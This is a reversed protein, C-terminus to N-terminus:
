LKTLWFESFTAQMKPEFRMYYYRACCIFQNKLSAIYSLNQSVLAVLRCTQSM